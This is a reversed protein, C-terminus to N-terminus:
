LGPSLVVKVIFADSFLSQELFYTIEGTCPNLFGKNGLTTYSDLGDVVIEGNANITINAPYTYSSHAPNGTLAPVTGPGWAGSSITYTGDGNDVLTTAMSAIFEPADDLTELRYTSGSYNAHIIIPRVCVIVESIVDPNTNLISVNNRSTSSLIVKFKAGQGVIESNLNLVIKSELVGKPFHAPINDGILVTSSNGEIEEITYFLDLGSKNVNTHLSVPIEVTTDYGAVGTIVDSSDIQVWGSELDPNFNDGNTDECSFFAVAFFLLLSTKYIAKNIM